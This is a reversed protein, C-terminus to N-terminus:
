DTDRVSTTTTNTISCIESVSTVNLMTTDYRGGCLFHEDSVCLMNIVVNSTMMCKLMVKIVLEVCHKLLVTTLNLM